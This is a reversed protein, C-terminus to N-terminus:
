LGDICPCVRCILTSGPSMEYGILRLSQRLRFGVMMEKRGGSGLGSWWTRHKPESLRLKHHEWVPGATHPKYNTVNCGNEHRLSVKDVTSM